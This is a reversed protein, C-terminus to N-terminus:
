KADKEAEDEEDEENEEEEDREKGKLTESFAAAFAPFGFVLLWHNHGCEARKVTAGKAKLGEHLGSSAFLIDELLPLGLLETRANLIWWHCDPDLAKQQSSQVLAAPSSAARKADTDAGIIDKFLLNMVPALFRRADEWQTRLDYIGSVLIVAEFRRRGNKPAVCHELGYLAAVHGGSSYGCLVLRGDSGLTKPHEEAWAVAAEVEKLYDRRSEGTLDLEGLLYQALRFAFHLFPVIVLGGLMNLITLLWGLPGLLLMPVAMSTALVADVLGPLVVVVLLLWIDRQSTLLMLVDAALLLFRFGPVEYLNFKVVDGPMLNRTNVEARVGPGVRIWGYKGKACAPQGLTSLHASCNTELVPSALVCREVVTAQLRHRGRRGCVWVDVAENTGAVFARTCLGLAFAQVTAEAFCREAEDIWLRCRGVEPATSTQLLNALHRSHISSADAGDPVISTLGEVEVEPMQMQSWVRM